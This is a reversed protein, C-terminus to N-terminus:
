GRPATDAEATSRHTPLEALYREVDSQRYRIQGGVRVFPVGRGVVRDKQLSSRARGILTSLERDTLLRETM